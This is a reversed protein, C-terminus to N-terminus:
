CLAGLIAFQSIEPMFFVEGRGGRWKKFISLPFISGVLDQRTPLCILNQMEGRALVRSLPRPHPTNIQVVKDM